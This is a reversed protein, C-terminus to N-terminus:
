RGTRRRHWASSSVLRYRAESDMGDANNLTYHIRAWVEVAQLRKLERGKVELEDRLSQQTENAAVLDDFCERWGDAARRYLGEVEDLKEQLAAAEDRKRRVAQITLSHGWREDNLLRYLENRSPLSGDNGINGTRSPRVAHLHPHSPTTSHPNVQSRDM